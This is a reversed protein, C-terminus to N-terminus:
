TASDFFGNSGVSTCSVDPSSLSRSSSSARANAPPLSRPSSTSSADTSDNGALSAGDNVDVLLTPTFFFLPLSLLYAGVPLQRGARSHLSRGASRQTEG